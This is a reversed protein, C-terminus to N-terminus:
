KCLDFLYHNTLYDSFIVKFISFDVLSLKFVILIFVIFINLNQKSSTVIDIFFISLTEELEFSFIWHQVVQIQQYFIKFSRRKFAQFTFKLLFSFIVQFSAHLLYCINLFVLVQPIFKQKNSSSILFSFVILLFCCYYVM